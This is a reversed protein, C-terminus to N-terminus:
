RKEGLARGADALWQLIGSPDSEGFLAEARRVLELLRDRDAELARMPHKDCKRIHATLAEDQSTPTGPPYEKGCYACRLIRGAAIERLLADREARLRTLENAASILRESERCAWDRLRDREDLLASVEERAMKQIHKPVDEDNTALEHGACDIARDVWPTNSM